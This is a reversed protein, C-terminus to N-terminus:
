VRWRKGASSPWFYLTDGCINIIM